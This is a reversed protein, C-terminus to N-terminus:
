VPIQSLDGLNKAVLQHIDSLLRLRNARVAADESMVHVDNFFEALPDALEGAAEARAGFSSAEDIRKAARVYADFVRREAEEVLLAVDLPPLKEDGAKAVINKARTFVTDLLELRPRDLRALAEALAAVDGLDAVDAQRAARVFEVPVGVLGELREEVFERPEDDLFARRISLGGETALRVLGIADRRLALPDSSSTPRRGIKFAVNLNDLKDAAALVRAAHTVPLPGGASNPLYQEDIAACVAESYGAMRAYHAGINGQLAPFERVLEAAQDAKALRAAEEAEPGGGLRSVLHTLRKTKDALSGAGSFFTISDLSGALQEIGRAVDRDFTFVADALRSELVNENGARVIDPDGGNSVFAFRTGSRPFYRQHEQMAIIIVSRPLVLFRQDFRGELVTPWEALHVVEELKQYPDSWDGGAALGALITRGRSAHDPEVCAARLTELYAQASPVDVRQHTFRHGYSHGGRVTEADLKVCLWRVPRPFRLGSEDWRMTKRFNLARIIADVKMPIVDRIHAEPTYFGVHGDRITLAEISVASKKAFGETAKTPKGDEFAIREPPGPVWVPEIREPVEKVFALRRPGVYLADPRGKFEDWVLRPLQREAERCAWAPLEECGIEVLLSPM